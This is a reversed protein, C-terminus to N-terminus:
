YILLISFLYGAAVGKHPKYRRGKQAARESRRTDAAFCHNETIFALTMFLAFLLAPLTNNEMQFLEIGTAAFVLTLSLAGLFLGAPINNTKVTNAVYWLIFNRCIAATDPYLRYIFRCFTFYLGDRRILLKNKYALFCPFYFPHLFHCHSFCGVFAPMWCKVSLQCTIGSIKIMAQWCLYM